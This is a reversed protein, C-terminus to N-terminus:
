NSDTDKILLGYTRINEPLQVVWVDDNACYIGDPNVAVQLMIKYSKKGLKTDITATGVYSKEVFTPRPSCYVGDGYATTRASRFGKNYISIAADFPLTDPNVEINLDVFDEAKANKTGHFARHWNEDDGFPELWKKDGYRNLVKWGHRNWGTPQIYMKKRDLPGILFTGTENTFDKDGLKDLCAVDFTPRYLLPHIKNVVSQKFQNKIRKSLEQLDEATNDKPVTVLYVFNMSSLYVNTIVINKKETNHAIALREIIQDLVPHSRNEKITRDFTQIVNFEDEEGTFENINDLKLVYPKHEFGIDAFNGFTNYLNVDQTSDFFLCQHNENEFLQNIVHYVTDKQNVEGSPSESLISRTYEEAKRINENEPDTIEDIDPLSDYCAKLDAQEKLIIEKEEPKVIDWLSVPPPVFIYNLFVNENQKLGNISLPRQNENSEEFVDNSIQQFLDNIGINEKTINKLLNRIFLNNSSAENQACAFQIFTGDISHITCLGKNKMSSNSTSLDNSRYPRCCDLIFINVYSSNKDLIRKLMRDFNIGFDEVDRETKIWTDNIPILYNTGNVQYGHGSYYFLVIDGHQITKSFNIIQTTMDYKELDSAIVVDFGIKILLDNLEQITEISENLENDTRQYSANGILLAIKRHNLSSEDSTAM